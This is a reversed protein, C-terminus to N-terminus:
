FSPLSRALLYLGALLAVALIVAIAMGWRLSGLQGEPRLDTGM